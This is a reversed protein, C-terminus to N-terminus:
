SQGLFAEVRDRIRDRVVRFAATRVDDSGDVAAPDPFPWELRQLAFPFIPCRESARDCVTIVHTFRQGLFSGVAKSTHTSIDIGVEAMAETAKENM